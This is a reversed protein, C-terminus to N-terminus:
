VDVDVEEMAETNLITIGSPDYITWPKERSVGERMWFTTIWKEGKLVPCGSHETYGPDMLGDPGKYSFVTAMGVTPKVFVDAKTFTTGGGEEAVKCYLVATAVRGGPNHPTHDCTGDCHPTYEDAMNYQIITFDEQGDPQLHMGAHKNTFHLVRHYLDWLPDKPRSQIDYGAQQAKRHNSVTSTGDEAAVTARRLRPLGYKEFHGCEEPSIFNHITWIKAHSTEFMTDVKYTNKGVSFTSTRLPESTSMNSDSCTYNRLRHSIQDRYKALEDKSDSIKEIDENLIDAVCDAFDNRNSKECEKTAEKINAKMEDFKTIQKVIFGEQKSFNIIVTEEKPGKVFKGQYQNNGRFFKIAFEHGDYSNIQSESANRIPKETQKVLPRGADFTNVWFLEIPAGAFNKVKMPVSGPPPATSIVSITLTTIQMGFM